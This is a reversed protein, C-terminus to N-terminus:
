LVKVLQFQMESGPVRLVSDPNGFVWPVRKHIPGILLSMSNTKGLADVLENILLQPLWSSATTRSRLADCPKFLWHLLPSPQLLGLDPGVAVSGRAGLARAVFGAM